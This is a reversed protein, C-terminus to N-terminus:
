FCLDSHSISGHSVVSMILSFFLHIVLVNEYPRFFINAMGVQYCHESDQGSRIFIYKKNTKKLLWQHLNHHYFVINFYFSNRYIFNEVFRIFNDMIFYYCFLIHSSKWQFSTNWKVKFHISPSGSVLISTNSDRQIAHWLVSNRTQPIKSNFNVPSTLPWGTIINRSKVSGEWIM